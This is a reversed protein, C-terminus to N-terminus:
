AELANILASVRSDIDTDNNLIACILAHTYDFTEISFLCLLLDIESDLKPSISLLLHGLVSKEKRLFRYVPEMHEKIVPVLEKLIAETKDYDYNELGFAQLFQSRYADDCELQRYTCVFDSQYPM